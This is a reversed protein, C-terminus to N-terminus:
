RDKEPESNEALAILAAIILRIPQSKLIWAALCEDCLDHSLQCGVCDTKAVMGCITDLLKQTGAKAAKHMLEFALQYIGAGFGEIDGGDSYRAIVDKMRWDAFRQHNCYLVNLWEAQGQEDLKLVNLLEERNM